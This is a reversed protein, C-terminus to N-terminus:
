AKTKAASKAVSTANLHGGTSTYRVSIRDGPHLDSLTSAAKDDVSFTLEKPTKGTTKVSVTKAAADVSVVEGVVSHLKPKTPRPAAPQTSAAQTKAPTQTQTQAASPTGLAPQALAAALLLLALTRM